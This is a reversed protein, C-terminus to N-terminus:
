HSELRSITQSLHSEVLTSTLKSKREWKLEFNVAEEATIESHGLVADVKKEGAGIKEIRGGVGSRARRVKGRCKWVPGSGTRSDHGPDHGLSLDGLWYGRLSLGSQVRENAVEGCLMGVEELVLEAM